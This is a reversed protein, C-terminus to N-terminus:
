RLGYVNLQNSFTALYVKGNTVTPLCFKALLGANDAPVMNSNWLEALTIADFARLMGASMGSPASSNSMAAWIIGTGAKGGNSSLALQGGPSNAVAVNQAVPTTNFKKGTFEYAKLTENKPWVYLRPGGPAAYWYSYHHIENCSNSLSSTCGATAQWTQVV